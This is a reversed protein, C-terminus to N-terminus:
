RPNNIWGYPRRLSPGWEMRVWPGSGRVFIDNCDFDQPEQLDNIRGHSPKFLQVHGQLYAIHGGDFHRIEVQDQNGWLGDTVGENWWRTNEEVFIPTGPFHTLPVNAALPTPPLTGTAYQAPNSLYAFRVDIGLRAGQLREPFTYDFDLATGTFFMNNGITYNTRQRKNTPCEGVRDADCYQYLWGPILFGQADRMRAWNAGDNPYAPPPQGNRTNFTPWVKEKNDQAYQVVGLVIQRMNSMCKAGQSVLRAKGLAPLLISILLAIIAIVVLLEILTFADRTRPQRM